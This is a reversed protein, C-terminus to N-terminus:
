GKILIMTIFCLSMCAASLISMRMTHKYDANSPSRMVKHFWLCFNAIVPLLFVGLLLFDEVRDTDSFYKWYCMGACAMMAGSFVFTGKYGLMMSMTTDGNERDADHQYIQTLPYYAAIQLSCALMIFPDPVEFPVGHVGTWIMFYTFGGQFFVVTLFGKVPDRKWRVIRSSYARSAIIYAVVCWTFLGGVFVWSLVLASIDMAATTYYLQVPPEPPHAVGGISSTDRDEYSNYGNSAPYVLLHLIVFTWLTTAPDIYVSQSLALLFVPMLLLSFPIRLLTITDRYTASIKM